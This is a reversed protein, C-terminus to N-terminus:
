DRRRLEHLRRRLFTREPATPALALALEYAETAEDRRDLRRLLDARVAPLQHSRALREDGRLLVLEALGEAPGQAFAVAVVRNLRVVPSPALAVLRDYLGLIARWDTAAWSPASAHEAAIAAQLSFKGPPDAALAVTLAALGLEIQERNWRRRDQEELLIVTGEQDVRTARRSDQLLLLALLGHAEAQLPLLDVVLRALRIAEDCLEHRVLADGRTAAYGETFVLSICALASELRESLLEVPPARLTPAADRLSARARQLRKEAAAESIVLARAVEDTRLGCVLKLTVAVQASPAIAPSCCAFILRLQDDAVPHLEAPTALLADRAAAAERVPRSAERRIHDLARNRAVTTIWAGANRPSGRAPWATLATAFAEQVADEAAGVDGLLRALTAIAQGSEARFAAVVGATHPSPELGPRADSVLRM